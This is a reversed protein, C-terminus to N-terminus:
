ASAKAKRKTAPTKRRNPGRKRGLSITKKEVKSNLQLAENCLEAVINELKTLRGWLGLCFMALSFDPSNVIGPQYLKPIELDDCAKQLEQRISERYGAQPDQGHIVRRKNEVEKPQLM